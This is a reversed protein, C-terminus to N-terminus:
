FKGNANKWDARPPISELTDWHEAIKGDQLRYLDYYSASREGFTGESVVLVFNGEGLVRHVREYKVAFGKETLSQLGAILGTLGDTVLAKHQIYNNDDFYGPLKDKRGNLLDDMYTQMLTKNFETKDLNSAVTPGDTMTHGTPSPEAATQQLNDWHEM